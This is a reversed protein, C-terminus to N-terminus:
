LDKPDKLIDMRWKNDAFAQLVQPLVIKLTAIAKVSDHFVIISGPKSYQVVTQLCQEPTRKPDYDGSLVDWMVISYDKALMKMQTPRLKGYPPRFYPSDIVSAAAAVDQLYQSTDTKWGNKHHYTHNGVAHGEEIIQQYLMPYKRVNDGVCFFTAKAGYEALAELVYPTAEPVPGDDFTLYVSDTSAYQWLLQPLVKRIM